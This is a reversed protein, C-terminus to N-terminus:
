IKAAFDELASLTVCDCGEERRDMLVCALAYAFSPFSSM